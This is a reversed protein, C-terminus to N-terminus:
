IKIKRCHHPIVEGPTNTRIVHKIETFIVTYRSPLNSKYESFLSAIYNFYRKPIIEGKTKLVFHPGSFKDLHFWIDNPSSTRILNDNELKDRGIHLEYTKNYEEVEIQIIKM